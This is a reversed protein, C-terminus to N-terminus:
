KRTNIRRRMVEARTSQNSKFLGPRAQHHGRKGAEQHLSDDHTHTAELVVVVGKAGLEAVMPDAIQHTM